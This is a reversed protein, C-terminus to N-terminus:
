KRKQLIENAIEKACEDIVDTYERREARWDPSGLNPVPVLHIAVDYADDKVWQQIDEETPNKEQIAKRVDRIIAEKHQYVTHAVKLLHNIPKKM